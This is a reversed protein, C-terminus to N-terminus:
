EMTTDDYRIEAVDLGTPTAGAGGRSFKAGAPGLGQPRLGKAPGTDSFKTKLDFLISEEYIINSM